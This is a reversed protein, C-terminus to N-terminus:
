YFHSNKEFFFKWLEENRTGSNNFTSRLSFTPSIPWPRDLCLNLNLIMPAQTSKPRFKVWSIKHTCAPNDAEPKEATTVPNQNLLQTKSLHSKLPRNTWLICRKRHRLMEIISRLDLWIQCLLHVEWISIKFQGLWVKVKNSWVPRQTSDVKRISCELSTLNWKLIEEMSIVEKLESLLWTTSSIKTKSNSRWIAWLMLISMSITTWCIWWINKNQNPSLKFMKITRILSALFSTLIFILDSISKTKVLHIKMIKWFIKSKPRYNKKILPEGTSAM